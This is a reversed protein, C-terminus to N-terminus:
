NPRKSDPSRTKKREHLDNEMGNGELEDDDDTDDFVVHLLLM